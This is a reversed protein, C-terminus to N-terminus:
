VGYRDLLQKLRAQVATDVVGGHYCVLKDIALQQLKQVTVLAQPLDLTFSPNAIELKDDEYVLADAAILTKAESIYLSIHGPMHGPTHIIQVGPLIAPVENDAFVADVQVPQMTQLLEQFARAGSKHEEPLTDYLLEAQQLRLSKEQGEVYAREGVSTYIRLNPYAKKLEYACGMHDIDHHTILMGTLARLSLGEQQLATELLPTFGAYGGDVLITETSTQLVVPYIHDEREGFTFLLDLVYLKM